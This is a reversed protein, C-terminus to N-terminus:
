EFSWLWENTVESGCSFNHPFTDKCGKGEYFEACRFGCECVGKERGGGLFTPYMDEIGMDQFLNYFAPGM